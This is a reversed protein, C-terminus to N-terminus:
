LKYILHPTNFWKWGVLAILLCFFILLMGINYYCKSRLVGFWGWGSMVKTRNSVLIVKCEVGGWWGCCLSMKKDFGVDALNLQPQTPTKIIEDLWGGCLSLTLLIWLCLFCFIMCKWTRIDVRLHHLILFNLKLKKAYDLTHVTRGFNYTKGLNIFNLMKTPCFLSIWITKLAHM